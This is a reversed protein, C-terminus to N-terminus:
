IRAWAEKETGPIGPETGTIKKETDYIEPEEKVSLCIGELVAHGHLSVTRGPILALTGARFVGSKRAAKTKISLTLRVVGKKERLNGKEDEERAPAVDMACIVGAEGKGAGDILADGPKLAAAVEERVTALLVYRVTTMETKGQPVALLFVAPPILLFFLLITFILKCKHTVM